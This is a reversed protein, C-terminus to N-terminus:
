GALDKIKRRSLRLALTTTAATIRENRQTFTECIKKKMLDAAFGL